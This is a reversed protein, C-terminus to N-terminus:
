SSKNLCVKTRECTPLLETVRAAACTLWLWLPAQKGARVHTQVGTVTCIFVLSEQTNDDTVTLPFVSKFCRSLIFLCRLFCQLQHHLSFLVVSPHFGGVLVLSHTFICCIDPNYLSFQTQLPGNQPPHCKKEKCHHFLLQNQSEILQKQWEDLLFQCVKATKARETNWKINNKLWRETLFHHLFSTKSLFTIIIYSLLATEGFIVSFYRLITCVHRNYRHKEKKLGTKHPSFM